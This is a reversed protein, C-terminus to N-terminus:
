CLLKSLEGFIIVDCRYAAVIALWLAIEKFFLEPWGKALAITHSLFVGHGPAAICTTVPAQLAAAKLGM